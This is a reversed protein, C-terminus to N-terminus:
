GVVKDVVTASLIQRNTEAEGEEVRSKVCSSINEKTRVPQKKSRNRGQTSRNMKLRGLHKM